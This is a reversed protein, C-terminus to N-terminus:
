GYPKQDFMSRGSAQRSAEPYLGFLRAERHAGDRIGKFDALWIEDFGAVELANLPLDRSMAVAMDFDSEYLAILLVNRKTLFNKRLDGKQIILRVIEELTDYTDMEGRHDLVSQWHAIEPSRRVRTHEVGILTGDPRRCVADPSEGVEEILLEEGTAREYAELFVEIDAVEEEKRYRRDYAVIEPDRKAVAM